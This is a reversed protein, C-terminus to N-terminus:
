IMRDVKRNIEFISKQGKLACFIELHERVTLESFLINHQPCVGLDERLRNMDKFIEYGDFTASGETPDILGILMGITTTKGAGNHGLL